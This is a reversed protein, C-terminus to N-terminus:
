SVMLAATLRIAEQTFAAKMDASLGEEVLKNAVYTLRKKMKTREDEDPNDEDPDYDPDTYDPYPDQGNMSYGSWESVRSAEQFFAARMEDSVGPRTLQEAIHALKQSSTKIDSLLDRVEATRAAEHETMPADAPRLMMPDPEM